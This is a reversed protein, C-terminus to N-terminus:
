PKDNDRPNSKNISLKPTKCRYKYNFKENEKRTKSTGLKSKLIVQTKM